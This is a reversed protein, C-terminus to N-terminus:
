SSSRSTQAPAGLASVRFIVYFAASFALLGVLQQPLHPIMVDRYTTAAFLVGLLANWLVFQVPHIAVGGRDSGLDRIFGRTALPPSASGGMWVIITTAAAICLIAALSGDLPERDGTVIWLYGYVAAVVLAWWALVCRSPEYPADRTERSAVRFISTWRGILVFVTVVLLIAALLVPVARAHIMEITLSATSAIPLGNDRGVSIEVTRAFMGGRLIAHWAADAEPPRNLRFRITQTKLDCADAHVGRIAIDDIFLTLARCNGGVESVLAPLGRVTLEIVDGVAALRGAGHESRAALVASDARVSLAAAIAIIFSSAASRLMTSRLSGNM